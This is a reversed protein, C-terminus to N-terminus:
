HIIHFNFGMAIETHSCPSFTYPVLGIKCIFTSSDCSKKTTVSEQVATSKSQLLNFKFTLKYFVRYKFVFHNVYSFSAEKCFLRCYHQTTSVTGHSWIQWVRAFRIINVFNETFIQDSIFSPVLLSHYCWSEWLM